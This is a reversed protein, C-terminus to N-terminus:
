CPVVIEPWRKALLDLLGRDIEDGSRLIAAHCRRAYNRALEHEGQELSVDALGYLATPNEPNHVLSQEYYHKVLGLEGVSSAIVAAHHSL